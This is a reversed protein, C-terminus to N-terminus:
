GNGTFCAKGKHSRHVEHISSDRLLHYLQDFHTRSHSYVNLVGITSKVLVQTIDYVKTDTKLNLDLIKLHRMSPVLHINQAELSLSRIHDADFLATFDHEAILVQHVNLYEVNPFMRTAGAGLLLVEGREAKSVMSLRRLQKYVMLVKKHSASSQLVTRMKIGLHHYKITTLGQNASILELAVSFPFEGFFLVSKLNTFMIPLPYSFWKGHIIELHEVGATARTVPQGCALTGKRFVTHMNQRNGSIRQSLGGLLRLRSIGPIIFFLSHFVDVFDKINGSTLLIEVSKASAFANPYTCYHDLGTRIDEITIRVHRVNLQNKYTVNYLHCIRALSLKKYSYCDDVFDSQCQLSTITLLGHRRIFKNWSSCVVLFKFLSENEAVMGFVLECLEPSLKDVFDM